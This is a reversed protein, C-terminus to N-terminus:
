TGTAQRMLERWRRYRGLLAADARPPFIQEHAQHNWQPPCGAALYAIGRASAEPDDRRHVPLASICALRQCLGDLQSVGGSVRIRRAPAVHAAM